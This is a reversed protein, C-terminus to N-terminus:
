VRSILLLMNSVYQFNHGMKASVNMSFLGRIAHCCSAIIKGDVKTHPISAVNIYRVKNGGIKIAYM